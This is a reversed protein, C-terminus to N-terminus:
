ARHGSRRNIATLLAGFGVLLGLIGVGVGTTAITRASNAAEQAEEVQDAAAQAVRVAENAPPVTDPFQLAAVAEVDNFRGPGSEFRENVPQGEVTGAFTFIYTGPRTPIFDAVYQGPNGFVARLPFDRPQGGGFAVSMKLTNALGEIRRNDEAPVSVAVQAGNPQGQIAPEVNFGVVLSYAGVARREHAFAAIPTTAVLFAAAAVAFLARRSGFHKM